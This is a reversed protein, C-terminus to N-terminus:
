AEEAEALKKKLALLQDVEAKAAAALDANGKDAAAAQVCHHPCPPAQLFHPAPAICVFRGPFLTHAPQKSLAATNNRTSV